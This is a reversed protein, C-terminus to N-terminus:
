TAIEGAGAGADRVEGGSGDTEFNVAAAGARVEGTPPVGAAPSAGAGAEAGPGETGSGVGSGVGSDAAGFASAGRLRDASPSISALNPSISPLNPSIAGELAIAIAPSTSVGEESERGSECSGESGGDRM